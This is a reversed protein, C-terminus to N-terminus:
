DVTVDNSARERYFTLIQGPISALAFAVLLYAYWTEGKRLLAAAIGGIVLLTAALLLLVPADTSGSGLHGLGSEISASVRGLAFGGLGATVPLLYQRWTAFRDGLALLLSIISAVGTVTSWMDPM